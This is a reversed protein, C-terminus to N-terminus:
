DINLDLLHFFFVYFLVFVVRLLIVCARVHVWVCVNFDTKHQSIILCLPHSPSVHLTYSIGLLWLNQNLWLLCNELCLLGLICKFECFSHCYASSKCLNPVSLIKGYPLDPPVLKRGKAFFSNQLQYRSHFYFNFSKHKIKRFFLLKMVVSTSSVWYKWSM